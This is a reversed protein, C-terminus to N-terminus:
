LASSALSSLDPWTITSRTFRSRDCRGSLGAVYWPIQQYRPHCHRYEDHTTRAGPRTKKIVQEKGGSAERFEASLHVDKVNQLRNVSVQTYQLVLLSHYPLPQLAFGEM